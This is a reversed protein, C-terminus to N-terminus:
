HNNERNKTNYQAIRMMDTESLEEKAKEAEDYLSIAACLGGLGIISLLYGAFVKIPAVSWWLGATVLAGMTPIGVAILLILEIEQALKTKM